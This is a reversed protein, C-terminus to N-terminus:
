IRADRLEEPSPIPIARALKSARRDRAHPGSGSGREFFALLRRQSLLELNTGAHQPSRGALEALASYSAFLPSGPTFGRRRELECVARYFDCAAAHREKRLIAPWGLQEFREFTESASGRRLNSYPACNVPCGVSACTAALVSHARTGERKNLGPAHYKHSGDPNRKNASKIAGRVSARRYDLKGAWRNLVREARREDLGMQRLELALVFAAEHRGAGGINGDLVFAVCPKLNATALGYEDAVARVAYLAQMHVDNAGAGDGGLAVNPTV